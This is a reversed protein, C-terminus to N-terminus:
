GAWGPVNALGINLQRVLGFSSGVGRFLTDKYVCVYLIVHM